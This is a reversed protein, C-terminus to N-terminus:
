CKFTLTKTTFTRGQKPILSKLYNKGKLVFNIESYKLEAVPDVFSSSFKYVNSQSKENENLDPSKFHIHLFGSKAEVNQTKYM